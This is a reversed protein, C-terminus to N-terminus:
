RHNSRDANDREADKEKRIEEWNRETQEREKWQRKGEETTAKQEPTPNRDVTFGMRRAMDLIKQTHAESEEPRLALSFDLTRLFEKQAADLEPVKGEQRAIHTVIKDIRHRRQEIPITLAYDYADILRKEEGSLGDEGQKWNYREAVEGLVRQVEGRGEEPELMVAQDLEQKWEYWRRKPDDIVTNRISHAMKEIAKALDTFFSGDM